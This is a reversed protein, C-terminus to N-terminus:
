QLINLAINSINNEIEIIKKNPMKNKFFTLQRKAYNRSKQKCIAVAEALTIEGTIYRALDFLGLIKKLHLPNTTTQLVTRVENEAGQKLMTEFRANINEYIEEKTKHIHLHVFNKNVVKEKAQNQWFSFPQGSYLYIEYARILRQKDQFKEVFIPDVKSVLNVFELHGKQKYLNESKTRYEINSPIPSIGELLSLLYMASGGVVIPLMGKAQAQSIEQKVLQLWMMVSFYETIPQLAFLKHSVGQREAETPINALIPANTYVQASDANIIVAKKVKKALSIAFSSKGSATAGSIIVVDTALNINTM